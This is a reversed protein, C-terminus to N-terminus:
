LNFHFLGRQIYLVKIPRYYIKIDIKDIFSVLPNSITRNQPANVPSVATCCTMLLQNLSTSHFWPNRIQCMHSRGRKEGECEWQSSSVRTLPALLCSLMPTEREWTEQQDRQTQTHASRTGDSVRSARPNGNVPVGTMLWSTVENLRCVQWGNARWRELIDNDWSSRYVWTWLGRLTRPTKWLRGNGQKISTSLKEKHGIIPWGDQVETLGGGRSAIM